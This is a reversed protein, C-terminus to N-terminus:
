YINNEFPENSFDIWRYTKLGCLFDGIVDM